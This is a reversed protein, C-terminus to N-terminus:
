MAGPYFRGRLQTHRDAIEAVWVWPPRTSAFDWSADDLMRGTLPAQDEGDPTAYAKPYYGCPQKAWGWAMVLGLKELEDAAEHWPNDAATLPNGIVQLLKAATVPRDFVAIAFRAAPTSRYTTRVVSGYAAVPIRLVTWLNAHVMHSPIRGGPSEADWEARDSGLKSATTRKVYAKAPDTANRERERIAEVTPYDRAKTDVHVTVRDAEYEVRAVHVVLDKGRFNKILGNSGERIDYKSCEQPDLTFEIEGLWGQGADRKRQARAARRGEALTVGQGFDIKEEVRIVDPDYDPNPGLDAGDGAYLRPMVRKSYALPMPFAGDLSGVNSGPSFEAAWSQPGLLGDVQIGAARQRDVLEERDARSFVGTVPRGVKEQWTSVGDGSDTDVDRTGVTIARVPNWNPFPPTDDPRWNPYKMNRWRGGDERVGEGYIVNPTDDSQLRIQVGRQGNVVTWSVTTTNKRVIQPNREECRVTWQRGQKDIATALLQQVYGTVRPEWAGLVSTKCGTKRRPVARYRRGVVSNLTSRIVTGIDKPSTDTAPLRVQQDAQFLAGVCEITFDGSDVDHGFTSIYGCFARVNDQGKRILRIDVNAGKRCWSLAGTGLQHFATIQPVRITASLSGFPEGRSWSPVPLPAGFLTSIDTGEVVVQIRGYIQDVRSTPAWDVPFGNADLTPTPWVESVRRLRPDPTVPALVTTKAIVVPVGVTATVTAPASTIPAPTDQSAFLAVAGVPAWVGTPTPGTIDEDNVLLDTDDDFVWEDASVPVREYGDGTLENGDEDLLGVWVVDPVSAPVPRPDPPEPPEVSGGADEEQPDEDDDLDETTPTAAFFPVPVTVGARLAPVTEELWPTSVHLVLETTGEGPTDWATETVLALTHATSTATFTIWWGATGGAEDLDPVDQWASRYTTGTVVLRMRPLPTEAGTVTYGATLDFWYRTGPTLGDLVWAPGAGEPLTHVQDEDPWTLRVQRDTWATAEGSLLVAPVTPAYTDDRELDVVTGPLDVTPAIVMVGPDVGDGHNYYLEEVTLDAKLFDTPVPWRDDFYDAM